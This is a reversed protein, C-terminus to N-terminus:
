LVSTHVRIYYDQRSGWFSLGNGKRYRHFHRKQNIKFAVGNQKEFRYPTIYYKLKESPVGRFVSLVNIPPYKDARM